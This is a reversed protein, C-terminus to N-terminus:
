VSHKPNHARIQDDIVRIDELLKARHKELRAEYEEETIRQVPSMKKISNWLSTGFSDQVPESSDQAHEQSDQVRVHKAATSAKGENYWSSSLVNVRLVRLENGLFQLATCAVAFTTAGRIVTSRGGLLFPHANRLM